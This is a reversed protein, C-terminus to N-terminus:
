FSIVLHKCNMSVFNKLKNEAKYAEKLNDFTLIGTWQWGACHPRNFTEKEDSTISYYFFNELDEAQKNIQDVIYDSESQEAEVTFEVRYLNSIAMIMGKLYLM